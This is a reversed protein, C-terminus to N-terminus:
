DQLEIYSNLSLFGGGIDPMDSDGAIGYAGKITMGFTSDYKQTYSSSYSGGM